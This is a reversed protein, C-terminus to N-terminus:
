KLAKLLYTEVASSRGKVTLPEMQIAEVSNKVIAYTDKQIFIQGPQASAQLRQAMNVVDGIATYNFLDNTGVNGVMAYGTTIGVRFLRHFAPNEFRNHAELNRQVLNIAARCARLAHDPQTDPTNWLAMVADGMFKDLTGEQELISQAAIDLYTNLVRFVDEPVNNESFSTFGSLDAFLITILTRAGDLDLATPNELLRDRVRPAVVRGFTAHIVEREKELKRTETLDEFVIAAGKTALRADKLPSASLRLVLEGRPELVPNLERGQATKGSQLVTEAVAEIDASPLADGINQGLAKRLPIGFIREAARNFLTIKNDVDTTIIGTAVSAFIDDMLNKMERTEDLTHRLNEFLRANELALTSQGAVAELFDLDDSTYPEGSRRSGLALFGILRGEYRLPVFVQCDMSPQDRLEPPLPADPPLWLPNEANALLRPLADDPQFTVETAQGASHPIYESRDDAFLFIVFKEPTLAQGLEHNLLSLTRELDPTIVLSRSIRSLVQRYDAHSRYFVRDIGRQILDRLPLFGLVLALLYSAMVIPNDTAIARRLLLSIGALIAYFAGLSLSITLVYTLARSLWRDVDLLRYRLIAYTVSLPLLILPPFLFEPRFEPIVGGFGTPVLYLALVPLFALTAGFIIVRSQTRIVTSDDRFVRFGLSVLFSIIGLAILIYGWRWSDIYAYPTPPTLQDRAIFHGLSLAVLLPLARLVPINDFFKMEVPFVMALYGLGGAAMPLSLGWLLVANQTTNMDLFLTTLLSIAAVFIVFARTARLDPRIRYAWLGIGLFTLGVLYPAIFLKFIDAFPARTPTFGFTLTEDTGRRYFEANLTAYGNQRLLEALQRTNEVSRGNVAVLRDSWQLGNEPGEWGAGKIQSVVNNPELLFGIFPTQYWDWAWLPTLLLMAVALALCALPLIHATWDKRLIAFM